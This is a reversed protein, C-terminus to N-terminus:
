KVLSFYCVLRLKGLIRVYAQGLYLGPSVERMEDAVHRAFFPNEPRDYDLHLADFDGARSRGIFSDFHFRQRADNLMRNYGEGRRDDRLSFTKGAWTNTERVFDSLWAALPPKVGCIMVLKGSMDGSADTLRPTSAGRYVALLADSDLQQLSDATYTRTSRASPASNSRQETAHM